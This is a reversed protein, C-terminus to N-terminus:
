PQWSDIDSIYLLTKHPGRILFGHTDTFEHRHPVSVPTIAAGDIAIEKGSEFPHLEINQNSVLLSWPANKTLFDSVEASAFVRTKKTSISEKGLYMLGTYHGMHAHTLFVGDFLNPKAFAPYHQTMGAYQERLDPTADIWYVSSGSLVALSSVFHHQT